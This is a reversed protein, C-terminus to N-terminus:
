RKPLLCLTLSSPTYEGRLVIVVPTGYPDKNPGSKNLIYTLSRLLKTELVDKLSCASSM